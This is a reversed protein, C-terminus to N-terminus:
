KLAAQFVNVIAEVVMRHARATLRGVPRVVISESATFVKLPRV